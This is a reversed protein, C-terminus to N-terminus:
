LGEVDIYENEEPASYLIDQLLEECMPNTVIELLELGFKSEKDIIQISKGHEVNPNMEFKVKGSRWSAKLNKVVILDGENLRKVTEIHRDTDRPKQKSYVLITVCDEVPQNVEDLYYSSYEIKSGDYLQFVWNQYLRTENPKSRVQGVVDYFSFFGESQRRIESLRTYNLITGRPTPPLPPRNIRQREPTRPNQPSQAEGGQPTQPSRLTQSSRLVRPSHPSQADNNNNTISGNSETNRSLCTPSNHNSNTQNQNPQSNLRPSRRLNPMQSTTGNEQADKQNSGTLRLDNQNPNPRSNNKLSENISVGIISSNEVIRLSRGQLTNASLNLKDLRNDLKAFTAVILDGEKISEAAKYHEDSEFDLKKPFVRLIFSGTEDHFDILINNYQDNSTSSVRGAINFFGTYSNKKLQEIKNLSNYYHLELTKRKKDDEDSLTPKNSSHIPTPNYKTVSWFVVNKSSLVVPNRLVKDFGLRHIRVVDGPKPKPYESIDGCLKVRLDTYTKDALIWFHSNKTSEEKLFIGYAHCLHIVPSDAKSLISIDELDLFPPPSM